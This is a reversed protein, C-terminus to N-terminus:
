PKPLPTAGVPIRGGSVSGALTSVADQMGLGATSPVGIGSSAAAFLPASNAQLTIWSPEDLAPVWITTSSDVVLNKGVQITRSGLQTYVDIADGHALPPAAKFTVPVIVMNTSMLDDDALLHGSALRHGARRGDGIPNGRYYLIRDGTDPISVQRVNQQGLVTGAAVDQTVMWAEHTSRSQVLIELYIAGIAAFLVVAGGVYLVLNRSSL